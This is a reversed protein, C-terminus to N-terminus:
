NGPVSREDLATAVRQMQLLTKAPILGDQGIPLNLTIAGQVANIRAILSILVEDSYHQEPLAPGAFTSDVPVPSYFSQVAQGFAVTAHSAARYFFRLFGRYGKTLRHLAKVRRHRHIGRKVRM